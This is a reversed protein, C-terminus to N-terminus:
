PTTIEYEDGEFCIYLGIKDSFVFFINEGTDYEKVPIISRFNAIFNLWDGYGPAKFDFKRVPTLEMRLINEFADFLWEPVKEDSSMNYKDLAERISNEVAEISDLSYYKQYVEFLLRSFKSPEM